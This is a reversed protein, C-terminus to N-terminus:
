IVKIYELQDELDPEAVIQGVTTGKIVKIHHPAQSVIWVQAKGNPGVIGEKSIHLHKQM